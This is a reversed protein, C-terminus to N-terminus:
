DTRSPTGKQQRRRAEVETRKAQPSRQRSDPRASTAPEKRGLRDFVGGEKRPRPGALLPDKRVVEDKTIFRQIDCLLTFKDAEAPVKIDTVLGLVKLKCKTTEKKDLEVRLHRKTQTWEHDLQKFDGKSDTSKEGTIDVVRHFCRDEIIVVVMVVMVLREEVCVVCYWQGEGGGYSLWRERKRLLRQNSEVVMARFWDLKGIDGLQIERLFAVVTHIIQRNGVFQINEIVVDRQRIRESLKLYNRHCFDGWHTEELAEREFVVVLHVSMSIPPM